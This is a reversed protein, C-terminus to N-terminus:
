LFPFNLKGFFHGQRYGPVIGTVNAPMAANVLLGAIDQLGYRSDGQHFHFPYFVLPPAATCSATYPSSKRFKGVLNCFFTNFLGPFCTSLCNNGTTRVTLLVQSVGQLCLTLGHLQIIECVQHKLGESILPALEM